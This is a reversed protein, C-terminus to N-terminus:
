CSSCSWHPSSIIVLAQGVDAQRYELYQHIDNISLREKSTQARMFVFLPELIQDALARDSARMKEWLDSLIWQVPVKRDPLADGRCIPMLSNNYARGEELSM